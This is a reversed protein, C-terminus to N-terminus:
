LKVASKFSIRGYRPSCYADDEEIIRWERDYKFGGNFSWSGYLYNHDEEMGIAVVLKETSEKRRWASFRPPNSSYRWELLPADGLEDKLKFKPSKDVGATLDARLQQLDEESAGKVFIRERLLAKRSCSPAACQSPPPRSAQAIEIDLPGRRLAWGVQRAHRVLM